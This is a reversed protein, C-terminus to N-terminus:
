DDPSTAPQEPPLLFAALPCSFGPVVDEGSLQQGERVKTVTGDLRHALVTRQRPNVVWVLRTGAALFEEVKRDLDYVADNSSVVEVVLDPALRSDGDPIHGGPLREQRVFSIDPKRVLRSAGPSCRYGADAGFVWGLTHEQCYASLLSLLRAGVLSSRMGVPPKEVVEGDILEFGKKVHAVGLEDHLNLPANV